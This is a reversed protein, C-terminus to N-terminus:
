SNSRLQDCQCDAIRVAWGGRGQQLDNKIKNEKGRIEFCRLEHERTSSQTKVSGLNGSSNRLTVVSYHLV